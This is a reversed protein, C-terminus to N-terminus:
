NKLKISFKNFSDNFKQSSETFSNKIFISKSLKCAKHLLLAKDIHIKKKKELFSWKSIFLILNKLVNQILTQWITHWKPTTRRKPKLKPIIVLKIQNLMLLHLYVILNLKEIFNLYRLTHLLGFLSLLCYDLNFIKGWVNSRNWLLIYLSELSDSMMCCSHMIYDMMIMMRAVVFFFFNGYM